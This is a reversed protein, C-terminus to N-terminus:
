TNRVSPDAAMRSAARDSTAFYLQPSHPRLPRQPEGGERRVAAIGGGSDRPGTVDEHPRLNAIGPRTSEAAVKPVTIPRTAGSTTQTSASDPHVTVKRTGKASTGWSRTPWRARM